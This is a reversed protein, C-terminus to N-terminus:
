CKFLRGGEEKRFIELKRENDVVFNLVDTATQMKRGGNGKKKLFM